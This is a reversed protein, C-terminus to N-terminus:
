VRKLLGLVYYYYYSIIFINIKKSRSAQAPEIYFM